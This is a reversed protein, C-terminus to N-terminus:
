NFSSTDSCYYMAHEHHSFAQSPFALHCDMPSGLLQLLLNLVANALTIHIAKPRYKGRYVSMSQRRAKLCDEALRGVATSTTSKQESVWVWVEDPLVRLLQKKLVVDVVM